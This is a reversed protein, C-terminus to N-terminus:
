CILMGMLITYVQTYIHIKEIHCDTIVELWSSCINQVRDTPMYDSWLWYRPKNEKISYKLIANRSIGAFTFM